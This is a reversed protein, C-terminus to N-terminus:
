AKMDVVLLKNFAILTSIRQFSTIIAFLLSAYYDVNDFLELKFSTILILISFLIFHEVIYTHIYINKKKPFM